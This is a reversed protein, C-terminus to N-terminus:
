SCASHQAGSFSQKSVIEDMTLKVVKKFIDVNVKATLGLRFNPCCYPMNTGPQLRVSDPAPWPDGNAVGCAERFHRREM